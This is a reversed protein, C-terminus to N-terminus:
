WEKKNFEALKQTRIVEAEAQLEALKNLYETNLANYDARLQNNEMEIKTNELRRDSAYKKYEEQHLKVLEDIKDKLISRLRNTEIQSAQWENYISDYLQEFELLEQATYLPKKLIVKTTTEGTIEPELSYAKFKIRYLFSSKDIMKHLMSTQAESELAPNVHSLRIDEILRHDLICELLDEVNFQRLKSYRDHNLISVYAKLQIQSKLKPPEPPTPCKVLETWDMKAIGDQISPRLHNLVYGTTAAEKSATIRSEKYDNIEKVTLKVSVDETSFTTAGNIVQITQQVIDGALGVALLNSARNKIESLKSVTAM